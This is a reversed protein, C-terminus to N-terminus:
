AAEALASFGQPSADEGMHLVIVKGAALAGFLFGIPVAALAAPWIDNLGARAEDTWSM